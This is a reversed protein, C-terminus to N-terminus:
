CLLAVHEQGFSSVTSSVNQHVCQSVNKISEIKLLVWGRNEFDVTINLLWSTM